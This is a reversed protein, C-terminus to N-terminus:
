SARPWAVPGLPRAARQGAPPIARLASRARPPTPCRSAAARSTRLRAAGVGTAEATVGKVAVLDFFPALEPRPVVAVVTKNEVVVWGFPLWALLNREEPAAAVWAVRVNALFGALSEGAWDDPNRM